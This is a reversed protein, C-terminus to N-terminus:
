WGPNQGLKKNNNIERTPIPFLLYKSTLTPGYTFKHGEFNDFGNSIPNYVKRTRVMDFWTKNEYCLEHYRERWVAERFQDKSLNALDPLQARKRIQNVANYAETTPGGVENAAEAYTLLVEAYRLLTWNIDAQATTKVAEEDFYKFIYYGGFDVTTNANDISAYKTFFYQQEQTRKDGQEYSKYFEPTAFLSGIEDSFKSIKRARPLLWATVGITAIGTQYQTQLIFETRNENAKNRMDAYQGFLQYTGSKIVENAKDAAKQYFEQGKNLPYGAMTLYVSALLSKVAGVTIKGTADTAPLGAAEATTLDNVIQTYVAEQSSRDPYLEPSNANIPVTILPVNGFIRVLHFYYFARFFAAEGLLRKKAADDMGSIAPIKQLALNANGIARYCNQWWVYTYNNDADATLSRLTNNYQSQGVETNALGTPFELMMFPSEGYTGAGDTIFRLSAYIGNIGAQAQEASQYYNDQTYNSRVDEDLFKKCGPTVALLAMGLVATSINKALNKM